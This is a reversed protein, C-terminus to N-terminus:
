SRDGITTVIRATPTPRTQVDGDFRPDETSFRDFLGVLIDDGEEVTDPVVWTFAVDVPLGPQAFYLQDRAQLDILNYPGETEDVAGDLIIRVLDRTMTLTTNSTNELTATIVLYQMGEDADFGQGPSQSALEIGTITTTMQTGVHADGVSIERLSEIPVDRFGGLAAILGVAAAAAVVVWLWWLRRHLPARPAADVAQEDVGGVTV